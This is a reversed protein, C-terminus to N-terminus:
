WWFTGSLTFVHRDPNAPTDSGPPYGMPVQIDSGSQFYSYQLAIEDRNM